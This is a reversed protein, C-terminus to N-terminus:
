EVNIFLYGRIVDNEQLLFNILASIQSTDATYYPFLMFQLRQNKEQIKVFPEFMTRGRPLSLFVLGEGRQQPGSALDKRPLSHVNMLELTDAGADRNLRDLGHYSRHSDM